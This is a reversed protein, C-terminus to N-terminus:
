GGYIVADPLVFRDPGVSVISTDGQRTVTMELNGEAQSQDFWAPTGDAYGIVRTSGDPWFVTVTGGGNGTRVVGFECTAEAGDAGRICSILGTATFDSGPPMVGGVPRDFNGAAPVPVLEPLPTAVGGDPAAGEVLFDGAAWGEIGPDALTAVRCWRRAEAMRCGLNRLLTGAPVTAAVPAGTSPDTRINLTGAASSTRVEFFDPGGQLGDAFDGEVTPGTAGTISVELVYDSRLGARAANRMQYVLITYSGSAPLATDFVNVEPVMPGVLDSGALGGGGPAQGPGFVTFVTQNTTAELTIRMRQGTEAGLTYAVSARGVITDRLTAGSTGAAFRVPETRIDDQAPAATPGLSLLVGLALAIITSKM